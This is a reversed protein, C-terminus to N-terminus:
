NQTLSENILQRVTVGDVTGVVTVRITIQDANLEDIRLSGPEVNLKDLGAATTIHQEFTRGLSVTM